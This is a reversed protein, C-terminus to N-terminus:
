RGPQSSDTEEQLDSDQFAFLGRRGGYVQRWDGLRVFLQHALFDHHLQCTIVIGKARRRM